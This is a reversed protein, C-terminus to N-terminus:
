PEAPAAKTDTTVEKSPKIKSGDFQKILLWSMPKLLLRQTLAECWPHAALWVILASVSFAALSTLAKDLTFIAKLVGTEQLVILALGHWLFVYISRQGIQALGWNKRSLLHLCALGIVGSLVYQAIQYLTGTLNAMGLRSLSYSGYLWRYDFDSKLLFSAIIAIAVVPLSILLLRKKTRDFITPGFKWGLLFFPFFTLTRAISLFYGSSESYSAVLSVGLAMVVPFQLRAFIPLMLRWCLLSMLYWLMWYPAFLASYVSLSGKLLLEISEYLVEFVFLPIVINKVLQNSQRDDLSAKSLMGSVLAFMPMHFSYIFIWVSRLFHDGTIHLEILHGFVVLFILVAKINDIRLNRSQSSM